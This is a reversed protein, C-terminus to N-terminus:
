YIEMPEDPNPNFLGKPFDKFSERFKIHPATIGGRLLSRFAFFAPQSLRFCIIEDIAEQSNKIQLLISFPLEGYEEADKIYEVHLIVELTM